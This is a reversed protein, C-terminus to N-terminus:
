SLKKKLLDNLAAPNAKGGTAKMVQGVFFGFLKDKGSKYEAVKDAHQALIADIAADIAGMDTMQQWGKEQVIAAPNQGTELMVEFVDKAIRGSITNDEILGVLESLQTASIPSHSIERGLKNLAGFLEVTVWNAALKGDRGKAVAEFFDAAAQDAVLTTADYAKLGYQQMLREKKADTLEPLARRLDEVWAADLRLPLLDPDPFYRYDHAEEKSRLARTEHKTTDWLRTEQAITGGAEVIEIQRQAEYEIAAMIFRISNVNKIECRTGLKKEGKRRVSLNVDARMSGEEMNGDCSGIYQLIARLKKVYAAAEEPGTMEPESVIEMLAVGARNLDVYTDKPSQDHLSKGADQELHLRTIGIRKSTGDPLDIDLYGKGVIPKQYQSIQYGAPLDPYFYNKRDFVSELNIHANLGFGTKVAQVVCQKNIVPLMGPFAADVLSVQHNPDAGFTTSAGSFLKSHSTIQAHVELGIVMEWEGTRGKIITM